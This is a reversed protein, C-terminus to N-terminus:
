EEFDSTINKRQMIKTPRTWSWRDISRLFLLLDVLLKKSHKEMDRPFLSATVNYRQSWPFIDTQYSPVCLCVSRVDKTVGIGLFWYRCGTRAFWFCFIRFDHRYMIHDRRLIILVMIINIHDCVTNLDYLCYDSSSPMSRGSLPWKSRPLAPLPMLTLYFPSVRQCLFTRFLDHRTLNVHRASVLYIFESNNIDDLQRRLIISTM